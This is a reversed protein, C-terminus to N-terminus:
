ADSSSDPEDGPTEAEAEAEFEASTAEATPVEAPPEVEVAGGGLAAAVEADSLRRFSRRGDGRSLVAVELEGPSLQRDPGTLAAVATRLAADLTQNPEYSTKVRELIADAEGGLVTYGQEDVVTGDYLIHFLRDRSSDAGVEAVVIEVEMPKIEHTFVDGLM